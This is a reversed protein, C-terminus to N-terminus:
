IEAPELVPVGEDRLLRRVADLTAAVAVDPGTRGVMPEFGTARFRDEGHRAELTVAFFREGRVRLEPEQGVVELGHREERGERETRETFLTRAAATTAEVFSAARVGTFGGAATASGEYLRGGQGRLAVRVEVGSSRGGVISYEHLEVDPVASDPRAGHSKVGEARSDSGGEAASADGGKASDESFESERGHFDSRPASASKRAWFGDQGRPRVDRVPPLEEPGTLYEPEPAPSAGQAVSDGAAASKRPSPPETSEMRTGPEAPPPSDDSVEVLIRDTPVERGLYALLIGRVGRSLRERGTGPDSLVRISRIEGDEQDVRCSRVGDVSAVLQEVQTGLDNRELNMNESRVGRALCSSELLWSFGHPSNKSPDTVAVSGHRRGQWRDAICRGRPHTSSVKNRGHWLGSPYAGDSRAFRFSSRPGRVSM